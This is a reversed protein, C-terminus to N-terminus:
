LKEKLRNFKTESSLFPRTKQFMKCIKFILNTLANLKKNIPNYNYIPKSCAERWFGNQPPFKMNVTSSKQKNFKFDMNKEIYINNRM